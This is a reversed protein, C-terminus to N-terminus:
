AHFALARESRRYTGDSQPEFISCREMDGGYVHLTVSPRDSLANRLLHYEFPPILAGSSGALARVRGRPAFRFREGGEAATLEYQLIEMEGRVVGEVCWIGAHDHLMTGQGPGWTMVVASYGRLPDRHLLRRAYTDARPACIEESLRLRGGRIQDSLIRKVAATVRTADGAGVAQDLAAVLEAAGPQNPEEM